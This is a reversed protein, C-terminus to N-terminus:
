HLERKMEDFQRKTIEGKAYRRKLIDVPNSHAGDLLYRYVLWGVLVFIGIWVLLQMLSWVGNAGFGCGIPSYSMMQMMGGSFDGFNNVSMMSGMRGFGVDEGCYRRKALVVHFQEHRETGEEVGMMKDMFEHAKGPHLSEMYYEGIRELQADSLESCAVKADVLAKAEAMEEDSVSSVLGASLALLVLISFMTGIKM